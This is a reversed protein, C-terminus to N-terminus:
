ALGIRAPEHQQPGVNERLAVAAHPGRSEIQQDRHDVAAHMRDHGRLARDARAAIESGERM